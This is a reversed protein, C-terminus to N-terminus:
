CMLEKATRVKREWVGGMHPSAPPNFNWTISEKIAFENVKRLRIELEKVPVNFNTVCDSTIHDPKERRNM